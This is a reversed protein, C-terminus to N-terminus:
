KYATTNTPDTSVPNDPDGGYGATFVWYWLGSLSCTCFFHQRLNNGSTILIHHAILLILHTYYIIYTQSYRLYSMVNLLLYRSIHDAHTESIWVIHPVTLIHVEYDLNLLCIYNWSSLVHTFLHQLNWLSTHSVSVDSPKRLKNVLTYVPSNYTHM